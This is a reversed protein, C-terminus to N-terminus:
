SNDTVFFKALVGSLTDIVNCSLIPYQRCSNAFCHRAINKQLFQSTVSPASMKKSFRTSHPTPKPEDAFCREETRCHTVLISWCRDIHPDSKQRVEDIIYGDQKSHQGCLGIRIAALLRQGFYSRVKPVRRWGSTGFCANRQHRLRAVRHKQSGNSHM